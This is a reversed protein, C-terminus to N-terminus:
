KISSRSPGPVVELWFFVAAEKELGCHEIKIM